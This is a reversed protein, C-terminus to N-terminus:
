RLMGFDRYFRRARPDRLVGGGKRELKLVGSVTTAM